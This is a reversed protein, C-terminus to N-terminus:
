DLISGVGASSFFTPANPHLVAYHGAQLDNALVSGNMNKRFNRWLSHRANLDGAIILKGQRRTLKHIENKLRTASDDQVTGCYVAIIEIPGTSTLLEIGVAEIISLQYDPLTKFSMGKRIAIVAGGGCGNGLRYLRIIFHEPITFNDSPKLHTETLVAVDIRNQELFEIFELKKAALSCAM